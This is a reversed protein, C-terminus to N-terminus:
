GYMPKDSYALDCGYMGYYDQAIPVGQYLWSPQGAPIPPYAGPAVPVTMFGGHMTEYANQNPWLEQLIYYGGGVRNTYYGSYYYSTGPTALNSTNFWQVQLYDASLSPAGFRKMYSIEEWFGKFSSGDPSIHDYLWEGGIRAYEAALTLGDLHFASYLLGYAGNGYGGGMRYIEQWAVNNKYQGQAPGGNNVYYNSVVSLNFLERWRVVARDFRPKDGLYLAAAFEMALGWAAWNNPRTYAIPELVTLAKTITAKFSTDVQSTYNPSEQVMIAAQILLGWGDFWNLTSGANNYFTTIKAYEKLINVVRLADDENGTLKYRYAYGACAKTDAHFKLLMAQNADGDDGYNEPINWPNFAGQVIWVDPLAMVTEVKTQVHPKLTDGDIAERLMDIRLDSFVEGRVFKIPDSITRIKDQTIFTM